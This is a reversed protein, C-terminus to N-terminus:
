FSHAEYYLAQGEDAQAVMLGELWQADAKMDGPAYYVTEPSYWGGKMEWAMYYLEYQGAQPAEFVIIGQERQAQEVVVNFIEQTGMVGADEGQPTYLIRVGKAAPDLDRRRWPLTVRVYKGAPAQVVIRHNGYGSQMPWSTQATKCELMRM